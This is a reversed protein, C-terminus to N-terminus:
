KANGVLQPTEAALALIADVGVAVDKVIIGEEDILYGVPTAFMAYLRSIEWQNQVAVPFTLGLATAKARNQEMERRSVMLVQLDTRGRHLEELKPAVQDCPGCQPDSFVLLVRKGRYQELKIEGGAITPLTFSPAPTGATLGDRKIRSKALGKDEKGGHVAGNLAPAASELLALLADAGVMRPSAIKGHEDILYGMPTGQVQYREAVEMGKQLLIACQVGADRFMTLNQGADGNTVILMQPTGDQANADAPLEGLDPLMQTCYGCGPSFFMLLVKRGRWHALSRRGGQLDPLEFEPAAAGIPLEPAPPPQPEPPPAPQPSASALRQELAELRLLIRGGQRLLQFGLWCGIALLIWPLIMGFIVLDM